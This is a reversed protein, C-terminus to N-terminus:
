PKNVVVRPAPKRLELQDSVRQIKSDQDKVHAVLAEIGEEQKAIRSKLRASTADQEQVKRQEQLFAKHEKLFENLLMANVAEYRVSYPKGGKDRVILDPNVKEVDEAVLGFQMASTGEPDVQKKYRFTIPKLAYLADSAHNMPKIDEKFRASSTMTGLRGNSNIRVAVGNASTAGFISGIYCSNNVNNGSAGICIVNNATTVYEGAFDGLAINYSGTTNQWLAQHGIATNGTRDYYGGTTNSSLASDGIATNYNGSTNHKLASDGIATNGYGLSNNLLAQFGTATNGYGTTNYYLAELGNATNDEGTTNFFLAEYGNATNSNGTTNGVLAQYGNATNSDGTTNAYLAAFGTATNHGGTTNGYLAQYGNATNRVGVTNSYLAQFGDATNRVGTTNGHLAEFGTATNTNGTTNHYLAGHGNATNDVGTTLSFLANQGEATNGGPYNGDPPPSVGFANPAPRVAFFGLALLITLFIFNRNKM